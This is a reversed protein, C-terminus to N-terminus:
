INKMLRTLRLTTQSKKYDEELQKYIKLKKIEESRLFLLLSSGVREVLVSRLFSPEKLWSLRIYINGDKPNYYAPNDQNKFLNLPDEETFIFQPSVDALQFLFCDM